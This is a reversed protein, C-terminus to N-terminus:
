TEAHRQVNILAVFESYSEGAKWGTLERQRIETSVGSVALGELTSKPNFGIRAPDSVFVMQDRMWTFSQIRV